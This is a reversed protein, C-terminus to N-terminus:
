LMSVIDSNGCRLAVHLQSHLVQELDRCTTALTPNSGEVRRVYPATSVVSGGRGRIIHTIPSSIIRLKIGVFFLPVSTAPSPFTASMYMCAYTRVYKCVAPSPFTASM